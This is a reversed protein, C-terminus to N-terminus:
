QCVLEEKYIYLLKNREMERLLSESRESFTRGKVNLHIAKKQYFSIVYDIYENVADPSFPIYGMGYRVDWTTRMLDVIVEPRGTLTGNDPFFTVKM